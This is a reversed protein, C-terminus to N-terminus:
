HLVSASNTGDRELRTAVRVPQISAIRSKNFDYVSWSRIEEALAALEPGGHNPSVDALVGPDRNVGSAGVGEGFLVQHGKRSIVKRSDIIVWEEQILDQQDSGIILGYEFTKPHGGAWVDGTILIQIQRGSMGGWVIDKYGGRAGFANARGRSGTPDGAFARITSRNALESVFALCDVINSKGAGNAGVLLTLPGLGLDFDELSKYNKIQLRKINM